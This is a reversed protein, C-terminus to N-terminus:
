NHNKCYCNIIPKTVLEVEMTTKTSGKIRNKEILQPKALDGGGTRRTGM